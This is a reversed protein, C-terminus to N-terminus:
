QIFVVRDFNSSTGYLDEIQKRAEPQNTATVKKYSMVGSKSVFYVEFFSKDQFKKIIRNNFGFLSLIISGKTKLWEILKSYKKM